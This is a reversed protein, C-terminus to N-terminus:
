EDEEYDDYGAAQAAGEFYGAGYLAGADFAAGPQWFGTGCDGCFLIEVGAKRLRPAVRAGRCV